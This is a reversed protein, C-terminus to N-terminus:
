KVGRPNLFCGEFSMKPGINCTDTSISFQIQEYFQKQKSQFHDWIGVRARTLHFCSSFAGSQSGQFSHVSQAPSFESIKQSRKGLTSIHHKKVASQGSWHGCKEVFNCIIFIAGFFAFCVDYHQHHHM